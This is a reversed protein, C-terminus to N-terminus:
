KNKGVDDAEQIIESLHPESRYVYDAFDALRLKLDVEQLKGHDEIKLPEFFENLKRFSLEFVEPAAGNQVNDLLRDFALILMGLDSVGTKAKGEEGRDSLSNDYVFLLRYLSNIESKLTEHTDSDTIISGDNANLCEGINYICRKIELEASEQFGSFRYIHFLNTGILIATLCLMLIAIGIKKKKM